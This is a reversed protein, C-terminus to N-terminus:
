LLALSIEPVRGAIFSIITSTVFVRPLAIETIPRASGYSTHFNSARMNQLLDACIVSFNDAKRAPWGEDRILKRTNM